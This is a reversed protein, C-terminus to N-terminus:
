DFVQSRFRVNELPTLGGNISLDETLELGSFVRAWLVDPLAQLVKTLVEDLILNIEFSVQGGVLSLNVEGDIGSIDFEVVEVNIDEVVWGFLGLLGEHSLESVSKVDITDEIFDEWVEHVVDLVSGGRINRVPIAVSLHDM